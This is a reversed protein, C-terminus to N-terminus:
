RRITRPSRPIVALVHSNWRLHRSVRPISRRSPSTTQANGAAARSCAGADAASNSKLGALWTRLHPSSGDHRDNHAETVAEPPVEAGIDVAPDEMVDSGVLQPHGDDDRDDRGLGTQPQEIRPRHLDQDVLPETPLREGAPQGPDQWEELSCGSGAD